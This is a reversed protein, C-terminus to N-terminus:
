RSTFAEAILLILVVVELAAGAFFQAFGSGLKATGVNAKEVEDVVKSLQSRLSITAALMVALGLVGCVTAVKRMAPQRKALGQAKGKKNAHMSISSGIVALLQTALLLLSVFLGAPVLPFQDPLLATTSSPLTTNTSYLDVFIPTFTPSTCTPDSGDVSLCAGLPGYVLEYAKNSSSSSATETKKARKVIRQRGHNIRAESLWRESTSTSSSNVGSLTVSLLSVRDPFIPTPALFALLSVLFAAYVILPSLTHYLHNM